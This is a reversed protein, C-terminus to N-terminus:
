NARTRVRGACCPSHLCVHSSTKDAQWALRPHKGTTIPLQWADRAMSSFVNNAVYTGQMCRLKLEPPEHASALRSHSNAHMLEHTSAAKVM